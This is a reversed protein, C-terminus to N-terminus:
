LVKRLLEVTCLQGELCFEFRFLVTEHPSVLELDVYLM